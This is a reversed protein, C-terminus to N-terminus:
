YRPPKEARAVLQLLLLDDKGLRASTLDGNQVITGSETRLSLPACHGCHEAGGDPAPLDVDSIEHDALQTPVVQDFTQVHNENAMASVPVIFLALMLSLIWIQRM